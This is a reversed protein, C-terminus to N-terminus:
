RKAQLLDPLLQTLSVGHVRRVWRSLHSQDAFGTRAAIEALGLQGERVLEVARRLRLHVVYRHPTIGVARAFMRTFHFPSRGAISALTAVAIPEDLHAVVYEKLRALVQKSLSGRVKMKPQSTHRAVVADIFRDAVENWFLPGNGYNGASESALIRGLDFLEQDYGTLCGVVQAELASEEAASLSFQAPDVAIVLGDFSEEGDGACDTGAPCISVAGYPSLHRLVRGEMRREMRLSPSLQICIQHQQASATFHVGGQFRARLIAVGSEGPASGAALMTPMAGDAQALHLEGIKMATERPAYILETPLHRKQDGDCPWNPSFQASQFERRKDFSQACRPSTFGKRVVEPVGLELLLFRCSRHKTQLTSIARERRRV